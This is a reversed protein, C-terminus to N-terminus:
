SAYGWILSGAGSYGAGTYTAAIDTQGTYQIGLTPGFATLAPFAAMGVLQPMTTGVLLVGLAYRTGRTLTVSGIASPSAAGNDAIARTNVGSTTFLTTDSATRAICTLGSGGDSTFLALRGLTLGSALTGSQVMSLNSVTITDDPTFCMALLLGSTMGRNATSLARPFCEGAVRAAAFYSSITGTSYLPAPSQAASGTHTSGDAKVVHVNVNSNKDIGGIIPTTITASGTFQAHLDIRHDGGSYTLDLVAGQTNEVKGTLRLGNINTHTADGVVIAKVTTGAVGGAFWKCESMKNQSALILAEGLQAGEFQCGIFELGSSVNRLGYDYVGGYVHLNTFVSGNSRGDQPLNLGYTGAATGSNKVIFGNIWQSDHPGQHTVGGADCDHIKYNTVFAEMGDPALFPSASGWESWVGLSRCNRVTFADLRYGFAYLALGHSTGSTQASKNGDITLDTIGFNYPTVSTDTGTLTAFNQSEIVNDNVGAALQVVTASRGVGSVHVSTKITLKKVIYTGARLSVRGGGAAAASDIATQIAATDTVGTADGSPAAVFTTYGGGGGGRADIAAKVADGLPDPSATFEVPFFDAGLTGYYSM